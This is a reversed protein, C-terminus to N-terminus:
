TSPLRERVAAEIRAAFAPAEKMLRNLAEAPLTLLLLPTRASVTATRVYGYGAGWDLAALEGFFEGPGLERVVERDVVVEARGELIVHFRRGATWRTTVEEGAEARVTGAEVALQEIENESLGEFLPLARVAPRLDRGTAWGGALDRHRDAAPEAATAEPAVPVPEVNAQELWDLVGHVDAERSAHNLVCLRIAYRGRLKTSSVLGYGDADLAAVLNRNLAELEEESRGGGFSRRFCVIGLKAPQLLELDDSGEVREQAVLALDIGNDIATRFADVGFANISLWVKLSRAMRSLQLGRDSFNVERLGTGIDKLYHPEIQFAEELLRGQRVLLCGCEYPQFLWKHPDLTVSDAEEIGELWRKGRDTLAAFGGYAGDVHLWTGQERCIAALERMPDVAGTNTSGASACVALPFLGISRDALSRVRWRMRACESDTM